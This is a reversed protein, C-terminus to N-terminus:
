KAIKNEGIEHYDGNMVMADFRDFTMALVMEQGDSKLKVTTAREDKHKLYVIVEDVCLKMPRAELMDLPCSPDYDGSNVKYYERSEDTTCLVRVSYYKM